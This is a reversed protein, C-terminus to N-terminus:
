SEGPHPTAMAMTLLFAAREVAEVRHPIGARRTLLQGPQLTLTHTETRLDFTLLPANVQRKTGRHPRVSAM